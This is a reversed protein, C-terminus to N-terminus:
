KKNVKKIYDSIAKTMSPANVTPAPIDVILGNKEAEKQTTAGFCALRTNNQKFEPFNEYLSKIGSPSFFVLVDYFVNELDSLDSVVTKFLIARTYDINAEELANPIQPKLSDSSPMLFKENKFKKLVPILEEIRINGHYIKRKRYVVYKQLYYAIAESICFYRIDPSIQVRMEECMRFYHDVANKSTFIVNRFDRIQIKDKRFNSATVGEVHIFSRFDIVVKHKDAVASYPNNENAPQPQSILISKVKTKRDDSM